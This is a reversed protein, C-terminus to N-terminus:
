GDDAKKLKDLVEQPAKWDPFAVLCAQLVEVAELLKLERAFEPTSAFWSLSNVAAFRAGDDRASIRLLEPLVGAAALSKLNADRHTHSFLNGSLAQIVRCVEKVAKPELEPKLKLLRVMLEHMQLGNMFVDSHDSAGGDHFNQQLLPNLAQLPEMIAESRGDVALVEDLKDRIAVIADRKRKNDGERSYSKMEFGSCSERLWARFAIEEDDNFTTRSVDKDCSTCRVFVDGGCSCSFKGDYCNQCESREWQLEVNAFLGEECYPCTEPVGKFGNPAGDGTALAGPLAPTSKHAGAAM